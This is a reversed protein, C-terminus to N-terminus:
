HTEKMARKTLSPLLYKLIHKMLTSLYLTQCWLIKYTTIKLSHSKVLEASPQKFKLNPYNKHTERKRFLLIKLPMCIDSGTLLCTNQIKLFTYYFTKFDWFSNFWWLTTQFWSIILFSQKCHIRFVIKTVSIHQLSNHEMLIGDHLPSTFQLFILSSLM